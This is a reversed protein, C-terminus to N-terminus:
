VRVLMTRAALDHLGRQDRNWMFAPIAFCLLLTRLAAQWIRLRGPRVPVLRMRFVLHGPSGNLIVLFVLQLAAFIGLTVFPDTQWPGTRFFAVSILSAVAWDVLIAGLRPGLRAISRPGSQPLGLREGPWQQELWQQEPGRQGPSGDPVQPDPTKAM